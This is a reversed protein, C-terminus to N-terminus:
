ALMGEINQQLQKLRHRRDEATEHRQEVPCSFDGELHAVRLSREHALRFVYPRWGWGLSRCGPHDLAALTRRVLFPGYFYDGSVGLFRACLENAVTETYQQMPPYTAFAAPTRAALVAGIAADDPAREVFDGLSDGFFGEKDPETYLFFRADTTACAAFAATVQGVLDGRDSAVTHINPVSALFDTFTQRTGRDAVFIPLSTKSLRRLARRLLAEEDDDRAWTITAVAVTRLDM